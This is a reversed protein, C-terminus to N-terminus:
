CDRGIEVQKQLEALRRDTDCLGELIQTNKALKESDLAAEYGSRAVLGMAERLNEVAIGHMFRDDVPAGPSRVPDLSDLLFEGLFHPQCVRYIRLGFAFFDHALPRFERCGRQEWGRILSLAEEVTDTTEAIWDESGRPGPKEILIALALCARHRAKLAIEASVLDEQEGARALELAKRAAELALLLEESALLLRSQNLCVASLTQRQVEDVPADLLGVAHALNALSEMHDPLAEATLARNLWAVGTRNRVAATQPLLSLEHLARDYSALAERLQEPSGLRTLADGRNMWGASIGWRLLSGAEVPILHRLEIARQFCALSKELTEQENQQLLCIGANTWLDALDNLDDPDSTPADPIEQAARQYLEVALARSVSTGRDRVVNGLLTWERLRSLGSVPTGEVAKGLLDWGARFEEPTQASLLAALESDHHSPLDPNM